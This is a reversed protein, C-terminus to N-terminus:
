PQLVFDTVKALFDAAAEPSHQAIIEASRQGFRDGLDPDDMFKQMATAIAQPDQPDFIYGNEGDIVLDSAGAFKSCLVGKSLTMAELVVMGWTDELTPLIFADAIKFYSGLRDYDVRGIWKVCNSLQHAQTYAELEARQVGDGVILLTYREQGQQKLLRCADLLLHLGKRPIIQGVYLFIPRQPQDTTAIADLKQTMASAAPVEYPQVFVRHPDAHLYEILYAKGDQSNTIYADSAKIMLRRIALRLPSNRFDVSPASGEYALVVRWRGLWKLLLALITWVGFSNTFVVDPRMRLLEGIVAPSVYTFSLGYGTKAPILSFVKRQGVEQVTFSNEFGAAFGHWRGTFVTTEPFRKAFHSLPPHWYFFASPLLWAVRASDM